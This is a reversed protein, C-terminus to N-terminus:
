RGERLRDGFFGPLDPDDRLKRITTEADYEVRRFTVDWGDLLVYCARWDGDRPQGVSGVNVISKRGDLRRMPGHEAPSFFEWNEDDAQRFVGPVHTHGCLCYRDILAGISDMKPQNFVDEPFVYEHLANRPSGHVLLFDGVTHSRLLDFLWMLHRRVGEARLAQWTWMVAREAAESTGEIDMVALLEHNGMLNVEWGMAAEVCEVPNPGYGVLDGLNYVAEVNHAKADALVATLAELNGHIDSVVAIM